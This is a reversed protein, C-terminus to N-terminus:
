INRGYIDRSKGRSIAAAYRKMSDSLDEPMVTNGDNSDENVTDVNKTEKPAEKKTGFYSEKITSLKKKYEDASEFSVDEVLSKMKEKETDALGDVQEEFIEDKTYGDITKKDEVAKETMENVKGKLEELEKEKAELVDYKEEPVDIYHDEFLQKLGGIFDEAIEGKIGKEIALENDAMWQEVVYNLYNDVKTTLDDKVQEKAESLENSYEGELREIETKVKSKVAAEFITAAKSKFEESLSDEGSTLAEVDASVDISKVREDVAEKNMKKEKEDEKDHMGEKKEDDGSMAAMMKHYSAQIESKKKKNMMDYMAQIMGSKTKPMEMIEDEDKDDEKDKKEGDDHAAEAKMHKDAALKQMPEAPTAGKTPASADKKVKDKSKDQGVKGTPSTVAPGLDEYDAGKQMPEAKGSGKKPADHMAEVVGEPAESVINENKIEEAM